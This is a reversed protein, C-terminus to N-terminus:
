NVGSSAYEGFTMIKNPKWGLPMGFGPLPKSRGKLWASKKRIDSLQERNWFNVEQRFKQNNFRQFASPLAKMLAMKDVSQRGNIRMRSLKRFFGSYGRIWHKKGNEGDVAFDFQPCSRFFTPSAVALVEVLNTGPVCDEHGPNRYYVMAGLSLTKPLLVLRPNAERLAAKFESWSIRM